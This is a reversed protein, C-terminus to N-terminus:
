SGVDVIVLRNMMLKNEMDKEIDEWVSMQADTLTFPLLDTLAHIDCPAFDIGREIQNCCDSKMLHLMLQLELLEDFALRRRASEAETTDKPFHITNLADKKSMLRFKESIDHPVDIQMERYGGAANYAMRLAESVANRVTSQTLGKALPYVPQCRMFTSLKSKSSADEFVPNQIEFQKAFGRTVKGFFVYDGNIKLTRQIYNQNYFIINLTGTGDSVSVTHLTLNRKLQRKSISRVYACLSIEDNEELECIKKIITRNEYRVPYLTILDSLTYVGLKAFAAARADKIGKIETINIEKISNEM